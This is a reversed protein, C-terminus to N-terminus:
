KLALLAADLRRGCETVDGSTKAREASLYRRLSVSKQAGPPLAFSVVLPAGGREQSALDVAMRAIKEAEDGIRQSIGIHSDQPLYVLGM